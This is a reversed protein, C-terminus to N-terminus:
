KSLQLIKYAEKTVIVFVIAGVILDPYGSHLWHVLIGATIVGLNIIIDNSTFIMSAQIHAQKSKNQKLLFLCVTNATLALLSIIIMASFDPMQEIGIFRRIVEVFGIGALLFQFYAAFKATNKQRAVTGGVAMLALGYVIGDALMDLSDAVLGMSKSIIGTISEIIFFGTNIILVTWLLKRERQPNEQKTVNETEISELISAGLKLSNLRQLIEENTDSHTIHLLRNPIDFEMFYINTLENLKMRIIREESPCDMDAIKFTTKQM